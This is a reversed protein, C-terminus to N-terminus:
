RFIVRGVFVYVSGFDLFYESYYKGAWVQGFDVDNWGVVGCTGRTEVVIYRGSHARFM